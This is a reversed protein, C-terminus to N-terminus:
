RNFVGHQNRERDTLEPRGLEDFEPEGAEDPLIMMRTRPTKLRSVIEDIMEDAEDITLDALHEGIDVVIHAALNHKERRTM